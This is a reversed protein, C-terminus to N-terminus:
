NHHVFGWRSWWYIGRWFKSINKKDEMLKMVHYAISGVNVSLSKAVVKMLFNRGRIEDLIKSFSKIDKGYVFFNKVNTLKQINVIIYWPSLM